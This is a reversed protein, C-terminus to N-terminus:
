GQSKELAKLIEDGEVIGASLYGAIANCGQIKGQLILLRESSTAHGVEETVIDKYAKILKRLVNFHESGRHQHLFIKDSQDM